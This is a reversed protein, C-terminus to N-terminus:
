EPEPYLQLNAVILFRLFCIHADNPNLLHFKVGVMTMILLLPNYAVPKNNIEFHFGVTM